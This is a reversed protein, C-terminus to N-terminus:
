RNDGTGPAASQRGQKALVTQPVVHSMAARVKNTFGTVVDAEGREMADFGAQAVEAASMKEGTAFKTDEMGARRFFETDTPGPMLCTVTVGTDVLEERLAYCFSDLLAKTGSYVAHFSGPMLGAISGTVLIKGEDLDHMRRGIQHILCLTGSVNTNIVHLVEDLDQELFAHGLGRGANALLADVRKNGVRNVVQMVGAMTSLDAVMAEVGAGHSALTEAADYVEQEDAVILVDYGNEVCCRALEYGIGSSAGTVIAFKRTESRM